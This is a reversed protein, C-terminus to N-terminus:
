SLHSHILNHLTVENVGETFTAADYESERELAFERRPLYSHGNIFRALRLLSNRFRVRTCELTEFASGSENQVPDGSVQVRFKM